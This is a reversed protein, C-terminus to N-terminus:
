VIETLDSPYQRFRWVLTKKTAALKEQTCCVFLAQFLALWAGSELKGQENVGFSNLVTDKSFHEKISTLGQQRDKIKDSKLNDLITKLNGM